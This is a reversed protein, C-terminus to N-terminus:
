EKGETEHLHRTDYCSECVDMNCEACETLEECGEGCDDCWM